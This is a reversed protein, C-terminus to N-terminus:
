TAPFYHSLFQEIDSYVQDYTVLRVPHSDITVARSRWGWRSRERPHGIHGDRGVVLLGFYPAHRTGFRTQFEDTRSMDDLKWFWDIIQSFGREVRVAWEPTTKRGQQRFLSTASADEWEIFGFQHRVSDGVVLDCSFDGFLQYQFAVLDYTAIVNCYNTGILAALQTHAEFFPKVDANEDLEAKSDLFQRYATLSARCAALDFSVRTFEKM